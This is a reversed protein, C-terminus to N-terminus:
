EGIGVRGAHHALQLRDARGVGICAAHAPEGALRTKAAREVRVLTKSGVAHQRRGVLYDARMAPAGIGALRAAAAARLDCAKRDVAQATRAASVGSPRPLKQVVSTRACLPGNTPWKM